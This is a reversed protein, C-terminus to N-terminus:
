SASPMSLNGLTSKGTTVTMMALGPAEATSISPSMVSFTSDATLAMLPTLSIREVETSPMECTLIWNESLLSKSTAAWSTRSLILRTMGSSGLVM